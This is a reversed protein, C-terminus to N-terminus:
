GLTALELVGTKIFKTAATKIALIVVTLLLRM